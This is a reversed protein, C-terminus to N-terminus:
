SDSDVSDAEISDEENDGSLRKWKGKSNLMYFDSERIVHALTSQMLRSGSIATEPDPLQEKTDVAIEAVLLDIDGDKGISKSERIIM